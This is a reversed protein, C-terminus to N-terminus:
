HALELATPAPRAASGSALANKVTALLQDQSFPKPLFNLGETLPIGNAETESSYGSTFIVKLSPKRRILHQALAPGDVGGPIVMDTILLHVRQGFEKWRLLADAGSTSQLVAYGNATLVSCLYDRVEAEDEVVLITGDKQSQAASPTKRPEPAPQPAPEAVVPLFIRFTTGVGVESELDMWGNHQKVIGYVTSLGLGTGNGIPKTTFFPEFVHSLTAADMGCGTDTVTLVVHLGERKNPHGAVQDATVKAVSTSLTLKGGSPMADRANVSLNMIVQEMNSEDASILPLAPESNCELVISEGLVRSLIVRMRDLTAAMNMPKRQVAQKRSFALLQRTLNSARESALKVQSFAKAVDTDLSTKALQL